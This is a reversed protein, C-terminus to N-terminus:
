QCQQCEWHFIVAPNVGDPCRVTKTANDGCSVSGFGSSPYQSSGCIVTVSWTYLCASCNYGNSIDTSFYVDCDPCSRPDVALYGLCTGPLSSAPAAVSSRSFGLLCLLPLLYGAALSAMFVSFAATPPRHATKMEADKGCALHRSTIYPLM